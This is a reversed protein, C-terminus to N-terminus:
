KAKFYTKDGSEDKVWLENSTLRLIQMVNTDSTGFISTTISIDEKDSTFEWTIPISFGSQSISGNGDKEFKLTGDDAGGTSETGDSDIYKEVVWERSLRATKTRLSIGPGDEYKGCSNFGLLGILMTMVFFLNKTKM